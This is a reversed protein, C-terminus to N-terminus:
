ESIRLFPMTLKKFIVDIDNDMNNIVAKGDYNEALYYHCVEERDYQELYYSVAQLFYPSHTSIVVTLDFARQLIVIIEAYFLQWEPHLNIEPEDLVIVSKDEILGSAVTRELLGLAKLGTSMNKVNINGQINEEKYKLNNNEYIFKGGMTKRIMELVKQAKNQNLMVQIDSQEAEEVNEKLLENYRVNETQVIGPMLISKLLKQEEVVKNQSNGYLGFPRDMREIGRPNDFYFAEKEVIFERQFANCIDDYGKEFYVKNHKGKVEIEAEAVNEGNNLNIIQEDFNKRFVSTIKLKAITENSIKLCEEIGNIASNIHERLEDNKISQEDVDEFSALGSKEVFEIVLQYIEERNRDKLLTKVSKKLLHVPIHKRGFNENKEVYGQQEFFLSVKRYLTVLEKEILDARQYEVYEDLDHFSNFMASLVKGVTSKGTNNEGAIVTIGDLKIDASEIKGINRIKLFM